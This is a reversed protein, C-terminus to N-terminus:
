KQSIPAFHQVVLQWLCDCNERSGRLTASTSATLSARFFLRSKETAKKFDYDETQVSLFIVPLELKGMHFNEKTGFDKAEMVYHQSFFLLSDFVRSQDKNVFDNVFMWEIKDPCLVRWFGYFAEVRNRLDAPLGIYKMYNEFELNM